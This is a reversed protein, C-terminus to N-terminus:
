APPSGAERRLVELLHIQEGCLQADATRVSLACALAFFTVSLFFSVVDVLTGSERLLSLIKQNSSRSSRALERRSPSRSSAASSLFVIRPQHMAVNVHTLKLLRSSVLFSHTSSRIPTIQGSRYPSFRPAKPRDARQNHKGMRRTQAM